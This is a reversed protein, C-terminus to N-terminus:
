FMFWSGFGHDQSFMLWLGLVMTRKLFSGLDLLELDESFM